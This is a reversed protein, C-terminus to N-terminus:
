VNSKFNNRGVFASPCLAIRERILESLVIEIDINLRDLNQNACWSKRSCFRDCKQYMWSDDFGAESLSSTFIHVSFIYYIGKIEEGQEDVMNKLEESIKERTERDRISLERILAKGIDNVAEVMMARMKSELRLEMARLQLQLDSDVDSDLDVIRHFDLLALLIPVLQGAAQGAEAELDKTSTHKEKSNSIRSTPDDLNLPAPKWTEILEQFNELSKKKQNASEKSRPSALSYKRNSPVFSLRKRRGANNSPADAAKGFIRREM